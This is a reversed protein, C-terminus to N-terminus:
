NRTPLLGAIVIKQYIKVGEAAKVNGACRGLGPCGRPGTRVRAKMAAVCTVEPDLRFVPDGSLAREAGSMRGM